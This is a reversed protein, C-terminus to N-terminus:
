PKGLREWFPTASFLRITFYDNFFNKLIVSDKCKKRKDYMQIYTSANIGIYHKIICIHGYRALWNDLNLCQALTRIAVTGLAQMHRQM